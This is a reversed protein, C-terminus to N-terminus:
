KKAPSTTDAVDTSCAACIEPVIKDYISNNPDGSYSLINIYMTPYPMHPKCEKWMQRNDADALLIAFIIDHKFNCFVGGGIPFVNVTKLRHRVAYQLLLRVQGYIVIIAMIRNYKFTALMHENYNNYPMASLYAINTTRNISEATRGFGRLRVGAAILLRM